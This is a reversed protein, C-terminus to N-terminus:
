PYNILLVNIKKFIISIIILKKIISKILFILNKHFNKIIIIMLKKIKILIFNVIIMQNYTINNIRYILIYNIQYNIIISKLKIQKYIKKIM